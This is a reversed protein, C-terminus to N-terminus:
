FHHGEFSWGWSGKADPKGFVTLFYRDPDRLPSGKLNKEGERLNNELSMVKVAKDYGTGSLAARLLDHCLKRQESNMERVQLGKREPKPINHWDLRKPDDFKMSATALATADLSALFANAAKTMAAGVDATSADKAHAFSVLILLHVALLSIRKM